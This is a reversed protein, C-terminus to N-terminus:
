ISGYHKEMLKMIRKKVRNIRVGILNTNSNLIDAIEKYSLDELVLTILLKDGDNLMQICAHMSNLRREKENFESDRNSTDEIVIDPRSFEKSKCDRQQFKIATNLAIRFIYTGWTSDSRFRDISKWIQILIEQYLDPIDERKHLYSHCIRYIRDENKQILDEFLQEKDAIRM